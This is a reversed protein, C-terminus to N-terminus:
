GGDEGSSGNNPPPGTEQRHGQTGLRQQAAALLGIPDIRLAFAVAELEAVDLPIGVRLKRGLGPAPLHARRALETSSWGQQEAREAVERTVAAALGRLPSASGQTQSSSTSPNVPQSIM